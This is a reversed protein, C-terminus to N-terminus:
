RYSRVRKLRECAVCKGCPQTFNCPAATAIVLEDYNRRLRNYAEAILTMGYLEYEAELAFATWELDFNM